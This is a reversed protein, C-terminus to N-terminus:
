ERRAMVGWSLGLLMLPPMLYAVRADFRYVDSLSVVLRQALLWGRLVGAVGCCSLASAM